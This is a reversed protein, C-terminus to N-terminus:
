APTEPTHQTEPVLHTVITPPDHVAVPGPDETAKRVDVLTSHASPGQGLRSTGVDRTLVNANGHRDLSGKTPDVPDHWAGTSLQIVGSRVADSVVAGALVRGRDNFVEVLDGDAIGRAAADAPNLRVPERGAVKAARSVRGMDLQGHLRHRPQNSIMHLPYTAAIPSGAWERPELWAPHGPCDDYGFGVVVDSTIEILGTPTRLPNAKPDQRFEAMLTREGDHEIAVEGQDWFTEFDVMEVGYALAKDRSTDYLHRLWEMETRGETYEQEVGLREALASFIVFDDRAQGVPEVARKMAVLVRDRSSAGVDNRELTTTAPLVIDARRATPTWWPEHVVITEPRQWAAALRNLDQHHHFPNGGAWYILRIDPYIRKEGDFEYEGGPNELMETHRAVPIWSNGQKPGSQLVPTGFPLKSSGMGASNGYGFSFGGGDLGIQGLMAALTVTMWYPQEGYEARQLSWTTTIFTRNSAMRHALDVIFEASLDCIEAAWVADKPQGDSEGLLYKRFTEYGHTHSSLFGHDVLGDRELTHALGLMLATDTNARLAVWEPDVDEHLDDRLPSVNVFKTGSRALEAMRERGVHRTIGGAEAQATRLPLGGFAVWLTCADKLRSWTTVEGGVMAPDGVVHPLLALATAFSYNHKQDTFGGIRNLFRNVQTKAHHFRGASSWGYSGGFIADNGYTTRVRDLEGAVLDLAQEWSVEVFEEAGRLDTRAGPGHELWSRRVAPAGVRLSSTLADPISTLLPSPDNDTTHPRAEVLHGDEVVATFAGWHSSHPVSSM